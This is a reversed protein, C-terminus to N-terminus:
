EQVPRGIRGIADLLWAAEHNGPLQELREIRARSQPNSPSFFRYLSGLDGDRRSAIYRRLARDGIDPSSPHTQSPSGLRQEWEFSASHPSDPEREGPGGPGPIVASGDSVAEVRVRVQGDQLGVGPSPSELGSTYLNRANTPIYDGRPSDPRSRYSPPPSRRPTTFASMAGLSELRTGTARSRDLDRKVPVVESTSANDILM